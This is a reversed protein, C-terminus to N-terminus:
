QAKGLIGTLYVEIKCLKINIKPFQLFNQRVLFMKKRAIGDKAVKSVIGPICESNSSIENGAFNLLLDLEGQITDSYHESLCKLTIDYFDPALALL